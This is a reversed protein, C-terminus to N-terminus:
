RRRVVRRVADGVVHTECGGIKDGFGGVHAGVRCLLGERVGGDRVDLKVFGVDRREDIRWGIVIFRKWVEDM